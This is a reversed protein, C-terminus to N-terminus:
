DRQIVIGNEDSIVCRGCASLNSSACNQREGVVGPDSQTVASNEM